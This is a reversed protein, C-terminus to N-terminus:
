QEILRTRKSPRHELLSHFDTPMRRPGHPPHDERGPSAPKIAHEKIRATAANKCKAFRGFRIKLQLGDIVYPDVDGLHSVLM